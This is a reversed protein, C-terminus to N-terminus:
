RMIAMVTGCIRKSEGLVAPLYVRSLVSEQFPGAVGGPLLWGEHVPVLSEGTRARGRSKKGSVVAKGAGKFLLWSWGSM